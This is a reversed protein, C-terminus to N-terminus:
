QGPPAVLGSQGAAGVGVVRIGGVSRDFQQRCPAIFAPSAAAGVGVVLAGRVL